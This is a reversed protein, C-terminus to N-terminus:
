LLQLHLAAKCSHTHTYLYLVDQKGKERQIHAYVGCIFVQQHKRCQCVDESTLVAPKAPYGCVCVCVKHVTKM